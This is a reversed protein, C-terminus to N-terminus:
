VMWTLSVVRIQKIRGSGCRWNRLIHAGFTKTAIFQIFHTDSRVQTAWESCNHLVLVNCCFNCRYKCAQLFVSFRFIYSLTSRPILALPRNHHELGSWPGWFEGRKLRGKVCLSNSMGPRYAKLVQQVESRSAVARIYCVKGLKRLWLSFLVAAKWIERPQYRHRDWYKYLNLAM